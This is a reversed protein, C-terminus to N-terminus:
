GSRWFRSPRWSLMCLMGIIALAIGAPEPIPEVRIQRALDDYIVNYGPTVNEFEGYREGTFEAIVYTQGVLGGSLLLNDDLTLWLDGTISLLDSSGDGLGAILSGSYFSVDGDLSLTGIGNGPSIAASEGVNIQTRSSVLGTGGLVGDVAVNEADLQGNVLVTGRLRLSSAEVRHDAAIEFRFRGADFSGPGALRSVGPGRLVADGRTLNIRYVEDTTFGSDVTITGKLDVDFRSATGSLTLNELGAGILRMKGQGSTVEGGRVIARQAGGGDVVLTGPGASLVNGENEFMAGDHILLFSAQDQIEIAPDPRFTAAALVIAGGSSARVVGGSGNDLQKGVMIIASASGIAELLGRNEFQQAPDVHFEIHSENEARIVGAVENALSMGIFEIDGGNRANVLGSNVLLGNQASSLTLDSRDVAEIVGSNFHDDGNLRIALNAGQGAVTIMGENTLALNGNTENGTFGTIRGGYLRGATRLTHGPGNIIRGNDLAAIIAPRATENGIEVLGNGSFRLTQGAFSLRPEVVHIGGLRIVGDNVIEVTADVERLVLNGPWELNLGDDEGLNLGAVEITKTTNHAVTAPPLRDIWVDFIDPM